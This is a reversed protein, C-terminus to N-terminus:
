NLQFIAMTKVRGAGRAYIIIIVCLCPVFGMGPRLFDSAYHIGTFQMALWKSVAAKM